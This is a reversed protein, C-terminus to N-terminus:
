REGNLIENLTGISVFEVGMKEIECASERLAKATVTGGEPGVHGIAVAYGDRLAIEGAKIINKKIVDIDDTSDLFVNRLYVTVRKEEGVKKSVTDPVTVSDVFFMGKEALVDFVAGQKEENLTIASGMHNNMGVAGDVIKLAEETVATIEGETMNLFVGKDGVWSKKGTQSEMPMHLMVEKGASHIKELDDKTNQSFPMLAATFPIDLSLMEETGDGTYGFDDIILALYAKEEKFVLDTNFIYLKVQATLLAFFMLSVFYLVPKKLFGSGFANTEIKNRGKPLYCM